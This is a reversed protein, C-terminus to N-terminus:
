IFAGVAFLQVAAAALLLLPTPLGNYLYKTFM